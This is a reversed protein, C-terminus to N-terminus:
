VDSRLGVAGDRGLLGGHQPPDAVPHLYVALADVPRGEPLMEALARGLDRLSIEGVGVALFERRLVNAVGVLVPIEVGEHHLIGVVPLDGARLESLSLLEIM